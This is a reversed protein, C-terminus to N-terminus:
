EKSVKLQLSNNEVDYFVIDGDQAAGLVSILIVSKPSIHLVIIGGTTGSMHRDSLRLMDTICEAALKRLISILDAEPM